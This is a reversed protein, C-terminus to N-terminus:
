PVAVKLAESLEKIEEVLPRGVLHTYDALSKHGVAIPQLM